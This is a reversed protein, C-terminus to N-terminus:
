LRSPFVLATVALFSASFAVTSNPMPRYRPFARGSELEEFSHIRNEYTFRWEGAQASGPQRKQKRSSPM